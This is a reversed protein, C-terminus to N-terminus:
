CFFGGSCEVIGVQNISYLDTHKTVNELYEGMVLSPIAM